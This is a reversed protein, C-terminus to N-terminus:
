TKQYQADDKEMLLILVSPRHSDENITIASIISFKARIVQTFLENQSYGKLRLKYMIGNGCLKFFPSDQIKLPHIDSFAFMGHSNLLCKIARFFGMPLGSTSCVLNCLIIDFRRNCTNIFANATTQVFELKKTQRLCHKLKAQCHGLMNPSPDVIAVFDLRDELELISLLDSLIRGSGAGLDLLSVRRTKSYAFKCIAEILYAKEIELYSKTITDYTSAIENFFDLYRDSEFIKEKM